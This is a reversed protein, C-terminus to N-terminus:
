KYARDECICRSEGSANPTNFVRNSVTAGEESLGTSMSSLLINVVGTVMTLCKMRYKFICVCVPCVKSKGTQHVKVGQRNKTLSQLIRSKQSSSLGRSMWADTAVTWSHTDPIRATSLTSMEWDVSSMTRDRTWSSERVGCRREQWM